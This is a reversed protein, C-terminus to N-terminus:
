RVWWEGHELTLRHCHRRSSFFHKGENAPQLYALNLLESRIPLMVESSPFINGQDPQTNVMSLSGYPRTAVLSM